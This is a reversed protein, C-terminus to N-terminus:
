PSVPERTKTSCTEEKVLEDLSVGAIRAVDAVLGVNSASGRELLGRLTSRSRGTKICLGVMDIGKRALRANLRDRILLGLKADREDM